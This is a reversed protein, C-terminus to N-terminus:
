INLYLIEGEVHAEPLDSKKAMEVTDGESKGTEGGKSEGVSGIFLRDKYWIPEGANASVPETSTSTSNRKFQIKM